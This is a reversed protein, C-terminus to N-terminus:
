PTTSTLFLGVILTIFLFIVTYSLILYAKARDKRIYVPLDRYITSGALFFKAINTERNRWIISLVLVTALNLILLALIIQVIINM